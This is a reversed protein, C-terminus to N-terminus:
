VLIITVIGTVMLCLFFSIAILYGMQHDFIWKVKSYEGTNDYTDLGYGEPLKEILRHFSNRTFKLRQLYAVMVILYIASLILGIIPFVDNSILETLKSTDWISVLPIVTFVLIALFYSIAQKWFSGDRYQWESHYIEILHLLLEPDEKFKDENFLTEKKEKKAM